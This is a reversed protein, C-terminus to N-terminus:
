ASRQKLYENIENLKDIVQQLKSQKIIFIASSSEIDFYNDDDDGADDNNEIRIFCTNEGMSNTSPKILMDNYEDVLYLQKPKKM